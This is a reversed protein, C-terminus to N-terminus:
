RVPFILGTGTDLTVTAGYPVIWSPQLHGLDANAVIPYSLNAVHPALAARVAEAWPEPGVTLDVGVVMGALRTLDCRAALRRLQDPLPAINSPHVDWFLVAGTPDFGFDDILAGFLGLEAGLLPGTGSGERLVTWPEKDSRTRLRTDLTPSFWGFWERTRSEYPRRALPGSGALVQEFEEVTEPFPGGAEGFHQMYTCGYISGIGARVALYHSLFVNDCYGVFSKPHAQIEAMDLFELLDRTGIGADAAVIADVDPDAFAEMIDAARQRSTGGTRVDQFELAHAGYSVRFGRAALAQYAREARRPILCLTPAAPSVVRIHGGPRVPPPPTPTLFPAADSRMM